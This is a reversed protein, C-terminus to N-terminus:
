VHTSITMFFDTTKVDEDSIITIEKWLEDNINKTLKAVFQEYIEDFVAKKREDVIKIKNNDTEDKDFSSICRIIEYGDPTEVIDSIEGNGLLFAAKEFEPEMDGHMFSYFNDAAENYELMISEFEGPRVAEEVVNGEDDLVAEKGKVLELVALAREYAEQKMRSTFEIKEGKGNLSYTKILIHEVTITRAEDDSIEPNIDKVIYDYTKEALVYEAYMKQIDELSVDLVELEKDSLSMFYDKAAQTVADNEEQTLEVGQERALLVMAKVRSIRALVTDKLKDELTLGEEGSTKEWIQSDLINEYQNQTNILYVMFEKQSCSLNEIRFLEGAGFGDTLVIKTQPVNEGDGGAACGTLAIIFVAGLM